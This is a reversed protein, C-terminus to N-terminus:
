YGYSSHLMNVNGQTGHKLTSIFEKSEKDFKYEIIQLNATNSQITTIYFDDDETYVHFRVTGLQVYDNFLVYDQDKGRVLLLWNQGDDWHIEGNPEQHADVYMAITEETGSSDIDFTYSDLLALNKTPIKDTLSINSIDGPNIGQEMSKKILTKMYEDTEISLLINNEDFAFKYFESKDLSNFVDKDKVELKLTAGNVGISIYDKGDETTKEDSFGVNISIKRKSKPQKDNTCGFSIALIIIFILGLSLKKILNKM